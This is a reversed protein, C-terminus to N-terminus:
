PVIVEGAASLGKLVSGIQQAGRGIVKAGSDKLQAEEEHLGRAVERLEGTLIDKSGELFTGRRLSDEQLQKELERVGAELVQVHDQVGKAALEARKKVAGVQTAANLMLTNHSQKSKELAEDVAQESDALAKVM